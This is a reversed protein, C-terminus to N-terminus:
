AVLEAEYGAEDVASLVAHADIPAAGTVILRGTRSSVDVGAVGPIQSVEDRIAAECHRCSMGSVRYESTTM